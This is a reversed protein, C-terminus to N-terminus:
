VAGLESTLHEGPKTYAMGWPDASSCPLASHFPLLFSFPNSRRVIRSLNRWLPHEIPVSRTM